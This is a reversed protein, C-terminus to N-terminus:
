RSSLAIARATAVCCHNGRTRVDPHAGSVGGAVYVAFAVAFGWGWAILLWDGAGSFAVDGRGSQNLSRL